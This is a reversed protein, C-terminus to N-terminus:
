NGDKPQYVGIVRAHPQLYKQAISQIIEPTVSSIRDVYHTFWDYRAFSSAYGMWFAQNTINDSSYAFLAKTQKLARDIETQAIPQSQLAEIQSDLTQLVEEITRTPNKTLYLTFTSPDINASLSGGVGAALGEDVMALYLRSTHHGVGGSGFMNLNSPGTLLSEMLSFAFFDDSDAKPSRYAVQIFTTEGPGQLELQSLEPLDEEPEPINKVM